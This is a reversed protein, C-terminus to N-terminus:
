SALSLAQRGAVQVLEADMLDAWRRRINALTTYVPRGGPQDAPMRLADGNPMAVVWAVVRGTGDDDRRYLALTAPEEDVLLLGPRGPHPDIREDLV